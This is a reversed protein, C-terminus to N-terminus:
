RCFTSLVIILINFKLPHHYDQLSNSTINILTSNNGLAINYLLPQDDELRSIHLIKRRLSIKAEKIRLIYKLERNKM